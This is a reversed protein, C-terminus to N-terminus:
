IDKSDEKAYSLREPPRRKVKVEGLELTYLWDSEGVGTYSKRGLPGRAKIFDGKYVLSRELIREQCDAGSGWWELIGDSVGSVVFGSHAGDGLFESPVVRHDPGCLLPPPTVLVRGM